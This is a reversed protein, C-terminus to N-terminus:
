FFLVNKFITKLKTIVNIVLKYYPLYYFIKLSLILILCGHSPLITILTQYQNITNSPFSRPLPIPAILKWIHSQVKSNTFYYGCM